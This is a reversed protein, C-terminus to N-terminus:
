LKSSKFIHVGQLLLLETIPLMAILPTPVELTVSQGADENYKLEGLDAVSAVSYIFGAGLAVSILNLFAATSMYAPARGPDVYCGLISCMGVASLVIMSIAFATAQDTYTLVDDDVALWATCPSQQADIPQCKGTNM